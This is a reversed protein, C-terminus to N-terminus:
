SENESDNADEKLTDHNNSILSESVTQFENATLVLSDAMELLRSAMKECIGSIRQELTPGSEVIQVDDEALEATQVEQDFSEMNAEQLAEPPPPPPAKVQPKPADVVGLMQLEAIISM